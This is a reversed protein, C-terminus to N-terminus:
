NVASGAQRTKMESLTSRADKVRGAAIDDLAKTADLVLRLHERDHRVQTLSTQDDCVGDPVRQHLKILRRM